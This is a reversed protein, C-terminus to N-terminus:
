APEVDGSFLEVLDLAALIVIGAASVLYRFSRVIM